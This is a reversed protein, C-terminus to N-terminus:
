IGALMILATTPEIHFTIPLLMSIAALAGLGPIMGVITGLLVGIFCYTLNTPTLATALGLAMSGLIDM